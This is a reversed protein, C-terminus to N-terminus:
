RPEGAPRSWRGWHTLKLGVVPGGARGGAHEPAAVLEPRRPPRAPPPPPAARHHGTPADGLLPRPNARGDARVATAEAWVMGAGSAGFRRWRRRVLDSPRGDPEADWGEMPLVCFRKAALGGAVEIPRALPGGPDVEADLTLQLGLHRLRARMADPTRLTRTQVIDDVGGDAGATSLM